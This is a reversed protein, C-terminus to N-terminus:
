AHNVSEMGLILSSLREPTSLEIDEPVRQGTTFYSLPKRAKIMTNFISGFNDAEDLKTFILSSVPIDRFQRIIDTLVSDSSTSSLVLHCDISNVKDLLDKIENIYVRDKHNRGATDILILDSDRKNEIVRPLEEPSLVVNVPIGIIKAYIKLQEIAGIRFTDFTILSVKKKDVLAYKAAVKAITTTKGVGTPGVLAIIKKNSEGSMLPGATKIQKKLLEHGYRDIHNTNNKMDMNLKSDLIKVLKIAISKDIGESLLRRYFLLLEQTLSNLEEDERRLMEQFYEKLMVLEMKMNRLEVPTVSIDARIKQIEERLTREVSFMDGEHQKPPINDRNVYDRAAVVEVVQRGFIGFVGNGKKIKKTSLIIADPGLDDKILRMAEQMDVAEYRKVQM